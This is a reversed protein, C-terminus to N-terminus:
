LEFQFVVQRTAAVIFFMDHINHDAGKARSGRQHRFDNGIRRGRSDDGTKGTIVQEEPNSNLFKLSKTRIRELRALRAPAEGFSARVVQAADAFRPSSARSATPGSRQARL